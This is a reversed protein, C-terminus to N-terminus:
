GEFNLIFIFGLEGGYTFNVGNISSENKRFRRSAPIFRLFEKRRLFGLRTGSFAM